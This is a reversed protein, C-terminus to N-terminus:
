DEEASEALVDELDWCEEPNRKIEHALLRFDQEPYFRHQPSYLRLAGVNSMYMDCYRRLSHAFLSPQYRARFVSGFPNGLLATERDRWKSVLRELSDLVHLDDVTRQSPGLEDQLLRLANLLFEITKEVLIFDGTQQIAMEDGVEPTVAATIWGYERKADVLDAFLSDGIYLVSPNALNLAGQELNVDADRDAHVGWNMLRTLENLCGETYVEGQLLREVKKFKVRSNDKNVERFPRKKDTYFRPKGASVIVIDWMSIWDDGLVYRMGADVYWYPSNSAFILHKGSSKLNTLVSKLHPTPNFYKKPDNAVIRHFDGSIHTDGIAGLIDNVVNNPCFDLESQKFFQIADAILCCEAMSFLDNLPKLRSRRQTADVCSSSVKERGEWAVAVKHTYSLHCIWGTEKDVALGRISFFPDFKLGASLMETPYYRDHVLRKLAMDYILELLEDTYTVLTYDYDFGVTDVKGLDVYTNSFIADHAGGTGQQSSRQFNKTDVKKSHTHLSRLLNETEILIDNVGTHPHRPLELMSPPLADSSEKQQPVAVDTESDSTSNAVNSFEIRLSSAHLQTTPTVPRTPLLPVFAQVETLNTTALVVVLVAIPVFSNM